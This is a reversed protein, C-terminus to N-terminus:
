ELKIQCIMDEISLYTQKVTEASEHYKMAEVETLELSLRQLIGERGIKAPYGLYIGEAEDFVSVPLIRGENLQITQILRGCMSAIGM